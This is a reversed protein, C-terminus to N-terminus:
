FQYCYAAVQYHVFFNALLLYQRLLINLLQKQGEKGKMWIRLTPLFYRIKGAYTRKAISKIETILLHLSVQTM